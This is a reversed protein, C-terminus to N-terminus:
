SIGVELLRDLAKWLEPWERRHRAMVERHYRPNPGEVRVAQSVASAAMVMRFNWSEQERDAAAEAAADAEQRAQKWAASAADYGYFDVLRSYAHNVADDDSLTLAARAQLLITPTDGFMRNPDPM